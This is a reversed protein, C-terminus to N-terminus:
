VGKANLALLNYQAQIAPMSFAPENTKGAMKRAKDLQEITPLKFGVAAAMVDPEQQEEFMIKDILGRELAQQATLWTEHEMMALADERSMGAKAMYAQCLANDATRLMEACHEMDSHNGRASSSVCHAMMLATPSMECYGAMAVVSAASCSEGVIKINVGPQYERLMTYIESGVDIIGGPSNIVVDHIEGPNANLIRQVDRPCTSDEEFYDYYWKYDNPIMVGRIDIRAM